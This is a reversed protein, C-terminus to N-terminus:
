LKKVKVKSDTVFTENSLDIYYPKYVIEAYYRDERITRTADGKLNYSINIEEVEENYTATM